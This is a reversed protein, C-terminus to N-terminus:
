KDLKAPFNCFEYVACDACLPKRAKCTYRGHLILYHHADRLYTPPIKKLLVREVAEPTAARALGIRNAVRFIHTDVALTAQGFVVNLIVNATKRGIGPMSQLDERNDPISGAFRDRVAECIGIIARAKNRYLGISRIRRRVQEEGLALYDAPERCERFLPDTAKNVAKDTCQASLVVAITLDLPTEWILESEPTIRESLISFFSEIQVRTMPRPLRSVNKRAAM